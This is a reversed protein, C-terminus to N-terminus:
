ELRQLSRDIDRLLTNYHIMVARLVTNIQAEDAFIPEDNGWLRATWASPLIPAAQPTVVIGTLYADLELPSMITKTAEPSVRRDSRVDHPSRSQHPLEIPAHGRCSNTSARHPGSISSGPSCM